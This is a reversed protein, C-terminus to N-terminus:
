EGVNHRFDKVEPMFKRIAWVGLYILPTDCLAILLKVFYSTLIVQIITVTTPDDSTWPMQWYFYLFIGNVITTDALQSVATSGNNRLWLHKGKTLRRWFHFMYNDLLQAVLYAFMSAFLLLGPAEFTFSYAAQAAASSVGTIAGTEDRLYTDPHFFPAMEARITWIDAPPTAKAASLVLLMMLSALFGYIVMLDARQKGWIESVIDTFWFTLPYTILGTTIIFAAGFLGDPMSEGFLVFLKTGIMNTIVLLAVFNCACFVYLKDSRSMAM